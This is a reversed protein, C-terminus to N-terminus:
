VNSDGEFNLVIQERVRARARHIRSRVTGVPIDLARAIEKYDLEAWAFLLLAERDAEPLSQLAAALRPGLMQAELQEIPQVSTELEALAQVRRGARDGRQTSRFHHRLLNTAIGYLWPRADDFRRDFRSRRDFALRFVEAAIDEGAAAARSTCYAHIAPWHRDFVSSFEKPDRLSREIAASDSTETAARRPPGGAVRRPPTALTTQPGLLTM